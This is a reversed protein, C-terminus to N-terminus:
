PAFRIWLATLPMVLLLAPLMGALPFTKVGSITLGTAIMIFGGCAGFDAIMEPTTHPLIWGASAFLAM